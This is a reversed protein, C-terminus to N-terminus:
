DEEKWIDRYVPSVEIDPYDDVWSFGDETCHQTITVWVNGPTIFQRIEDHCIYSYWRIRKDVVTWSDPVSWDYSTQYGVEISEILVQRKIKNYKRAM